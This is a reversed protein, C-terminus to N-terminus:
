GLGSQMFGLEFTTHLTWICTYIAKAFCNDLVSMTLFEKWKLTDSVTSNKALVRFEFNSFCSPDRLDRFELGRSIQQRIVLLEVVVEEALEHHVLLQIVLGLRERFCRPSRSRIIRCGLTELRCEQRRLMCHGRGVHSCRLQIKMFCFKM